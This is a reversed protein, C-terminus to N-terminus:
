NAVSDSKHLGRYRHLPSFQGSLYDPPSFQTALDIITKDLQGSTMNFYKTLLISWRKIHKGHGDLYIALVYQNILYIGTETSNFLQKATKDEDFWHKLSKNSHRKVKAWFAIEKHPAIALAKLTVSPLPLFMDTKNLLAYLSFGLYKQCALKLPMGKKSVQIQGRGMIKPAAAWMLWLPANFFLTPLFFRTGRTGHKEPMLCNALHAAFLSASLLEKQGDLMSVETKTKELIQQIHDLGLLGILHIMGQIDHEKQKLQWHAKLFLKLCLVPDQQITKALHNITSNPSTIEKKTKQIASVNLPISHKPLTSLWKKLRYNADVQQQSHDSHAKM